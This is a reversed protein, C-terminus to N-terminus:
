SAHLQRAAEAAAGNAARQSEVGLRVLKPIRWPKTLLYKLSASMNPTGDPKALNIVDGPTVGVLDSIARVASWAVGREECVRAVASTEMDVAIFGEAVLRDREADKMDFDDHTVLRGRSEVAGLPAPRYETGSDKDVVVEPFVLDGVRSTGMGGAIGVVMVHDLPGRDLLRATAEAALRTGMGTKAAILQITGATGAWGADGRQLSLAKALPRFESPMPALLGVRGPRDTNNRDANDMKM